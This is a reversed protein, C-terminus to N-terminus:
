CNITVETPASAPDPSLVQLTVKQSASGHGQGEVAVTVFLSHQGSVVTQSQPQPAEAQPQFVWEYTVTGAAGNTDIKGTVNVACGSKTEGTISAGSTHFPAHHFRLFLVVAAAALLLVTFATGAVRRLRRPRKAPEPMRGTRWVQEATVGAQSEPVGPGYRVMDSGPAQSGPPPGPPRGPPPGVPLPVVPPAGPPPPGGSLQTPSDYPSRQGAQPQVYTPPPPQYQGYQGGGQPQRPAVYTSEWPAAPESSPQRPPMYTPPPPANGSPPQPRPAVYTAEWPSAPGSPPRPPGGPRQQSPPVYTPEWPAGPEPPPQRPPVFTPPPPSAPDPPPQRPPVYTSEWPPAADSPPPQRSPVTPETRQSGMAQDRGWHPHAVEVDDDDGPPVPGYGSSGEGMQVM